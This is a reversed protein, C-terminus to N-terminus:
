ESRTQPTTRPVNLMKPYSRLSAPPPTDQEQQHQQQTAPPSPSHQHYHAAETSSLVHRRPPVTDIPTATYPHPAATVIARLLAWPLTPPPTLLSRDPQESDTLVTVAASPALTQRADCVQEAREFRV